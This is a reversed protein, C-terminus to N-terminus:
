TRASLTELVELWREHRGDFPADWGSVAALVADCSRRAADVVDSPYGLEVTHEAFEDEDDVFVSGDVRRVVDLDLDVTRLTSGDWVPPTTIDVYVAVWQRPQGHFTAVWGRQEAPLDAGPLLGVQRNQSVVAFGPRSMATGPPIGIWDGSEDTGLWRADFEWHPRDGWKTMELRIASGPEFRM